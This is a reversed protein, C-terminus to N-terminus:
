ASSRPSPPRDACAARTVGSSMCPEEYERRYYQSYYYGNRQLDVRNLVAGVFNAKAQDLHEVARAAAQRSTMESGVVFVVGSAQHALLAADTVPMVPPSDVIIWDFHQNLSTVFDRCRQSGILEAPNPPTRGATLLWMNTVESKRVSDSAKSNGVLVNSLGPEQPVKFMEHMKPRRMDADVLLVRPGAQALAVALNGAVTSKGENPGTSTVVITRSGEQAFSFLVNTRISRFAESFAPQVGNNLLPHADVGERV